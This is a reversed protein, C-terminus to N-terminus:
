YPIDGSRFNMRASPMIVKNERRMTEPNFDWAPWEGSAQCLKIRRIAERFKWRGSEIVGRDVQRVAVVYPASNEVIVHWFQCEVATINNAQLGDEIMAFQLDYGYDDVAYEFKTPEACITTKLDVVVAEGYLITLFDPKAKFQLGDREWLITAQKHQAGDIIAMADADRRLAAIMEVSEGWETFSLQPLNERETWAKYAVSEEKCGGNAVLKRADGAPPMPYRKDFEAPTSIVGFDVCTGKIMASTEEVPLNAHYHAMTEMVAKHLRSRSLHPLALYAPFDIDHHIGPAPNKM